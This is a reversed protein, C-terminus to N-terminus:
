RSGEVERSKDNTEKARQHKDNDPEPIVLYSWGQGTYDTSQLADRFKGAVVGLNNDGKFPKPSIASRASAQPVRANVIDVFNATQVTQSFLPAVFFLLPACSAVRM